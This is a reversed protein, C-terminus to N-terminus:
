TAAGNSGRLLVLLRLGIGELNRAAQESQQTSALNQSTAQDINRMASQIQSMGVVQQGVSTSISTSAQAAEVITEVLMRIAEDAENVIRMAEEVSKTGQETAMVAANTSKQIEGLIQRVQVTAKKSQDALAKIEAAVVSFGKGQEGARTAEISANLALINTQEALDNVVTIIDGIAQAQSALSLISQAISETRTKIDGMVAITNEVSRRGVAGGDSARRSSDAVAKARENSQEATQTIEEVTAVTQAVAAAQEQVGAAQQTTGAVIEATAASLQAIAQEIPASLNRIAIFGVIVLAVIVALSGFVIADQTSTAASEANADRVSQLQSEESDADQLIHKIRESLSNSVGQPALRLMEVLGHSRRLAIKAAKGRVDTDFTTQLERARAQERPNDATLRTFTGLANQFATVDDLYATALADSGSLLYGREDAVIDAMQVKMSALAIRVQYTHQVWWRAHLLNQTNVYALAAVVILALPGLVFVIGLKRAISWSRM